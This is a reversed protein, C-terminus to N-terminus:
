GGHRLGEALVLGGVSVGCGMGWAEGGEVKLGAIHSQAAPHVVPVVDPSLHGPLEVRTLAACAVVAAGM